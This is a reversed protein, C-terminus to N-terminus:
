TAVVRAVDCNNTVAVDRSSSSGEIKKWSIYSSICPKAASEGWAAVAWGALGSVAGAKTAVRRRLKVDSFESDAASRRAVRAAEPIESACLSFQTPARASDVSAGTTLAPSGTWTEGLPASGNVSHPTFHNRSFLPPVLPSPTACSNPEAM